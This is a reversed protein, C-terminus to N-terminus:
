WFYLMTSQSPSTYYLPTTYIAKCEESDMRDGKWKIGASHNPSISGFIVAPGQNICDLWLLGMRRAALESSEVILRM